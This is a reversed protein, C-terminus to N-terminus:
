TEHARLHTYSVPATRVTYTADITNPYDHVTITPASSYGSGVDYITFGSVRSSAIDARMFPRAGYSVSCADTTGKSGIFLPMGSSTIGGAVVTYGGTTAFAKTTSDDLLSSWVSGSQSTIITNDLSNTCM